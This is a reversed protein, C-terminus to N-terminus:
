PLSLIDSRLVQTFFIIINRRDVLCWVLHCASWTDRYRKKSTDSEDKVWQGRPSRLTIKFIYDEIKSQQNTDEFRRIIIDESSYWLVKSIILCCQNLYHSPATVHAIQGSDAHSRVNKIPLTEVPTTVNVASRHTRRILCFLQRLGATLFQRLSRQPQFTIPWVGSQNYAVCYMDMSVTRDGSSRTVVRSEAAFNTWLRGHSWLKITVGRFKCKCGCRGTATLGSIGLLTLDLDLQKKIYLWNSDVVYEMRRSDWQCWTMMPEPSSYMWSIFLLKRNKQM